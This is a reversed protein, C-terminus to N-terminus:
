IKNKALITLACNGNVRLACSPTCLIRLMQQNNNDDKIGTSLFPCIKNDIDSM